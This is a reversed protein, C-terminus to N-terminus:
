GIQRAAVASGGRGACSITSVPVGRGGTAISSARVPRSIKRVVHAAQWLDSPVPTGLRPLLMTLLSKRADCVSTSISDNMLFPRGAVSGMFVVRIGMGGKPPREDIDGASSRPTIAYMRPRCSGLRMGASGAYAGGASVAMATASVNPAGVTIDKSATNTAGKNDTVTLTVHYVGPVTYTKAVTATTASTSDGLDWLYSAISGGPDSSTLGSLNVDLPATGSEPSAQIVATPPTNVPNGPTTTCAAGVLGIFGFLCLLARFSRRM